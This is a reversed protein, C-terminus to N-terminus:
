RRLIVQRFSCAIFGNYTCDIEHAPIMIDVVTSSLVVTVRALISRHYNRCFSRGIFRYKKFAPNNLPFLMSHIFGNCTCGIEDSGDHCDEDGDCKWALNICDHNRCTFERSTCPSDVIATVNFCGQEDSGDGCDDDGDCRWREHICGSVNCRFQTPLCTVPAALM